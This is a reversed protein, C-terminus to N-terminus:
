SHVTMKYGCSCMYFITQGEDASRLQVAKYYMKENGCKPCIQAILAGKDEIDFKSKLTYYQEHVVVSKAAKSKCIGCSMDKPLYTGCKCFM